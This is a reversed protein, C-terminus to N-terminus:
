LHGPLISIMAPRLTFIFDSRKGLGNKFGRHSRFILAGDAFLPIKARFKRRLSGPQNAGGIKRCCRQNGVTSHNASHIKKPGYARDIAASKSSAIVIFYIKSARKM